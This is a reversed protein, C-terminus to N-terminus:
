YISKIGFHRPLNTSLAIRHRLNLSYNKRKFIAYNYSNLTDNKTIMDFDMDILDPSLAMTDESTSTLLFQRSSLVLSCVNQATNTNKEEGLGM